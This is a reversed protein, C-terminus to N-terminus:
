WNNTQKDAEEVGITIIVSVGSKHMGVTEPHGFPNANISPKWAGSHVIHVHDREKISGMGNCIIM